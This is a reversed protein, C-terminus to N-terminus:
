GALHFRNQTHRAPWEDTLLRNLDEAVKPGRSFGLGCLEIATIINQLDLASMASFRSDAVMIALQRLVKESCM